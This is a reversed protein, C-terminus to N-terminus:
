NNAVHQLDVALSAATAIAADVANGGAKLIDLGIAATLPHSTAVAGHRAYSLSRTSPFPLHYPDYNM